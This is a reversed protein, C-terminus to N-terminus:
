GGQFNALLDLQFSLLVTHKLLVDLLFACIHSKNLTLYRGPGLSPQSSSTLALNELSVTMYTKQRRMMEMKALM